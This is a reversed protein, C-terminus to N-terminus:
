QFQIDKLKLRLDARPQIELNESHLLILEQSLLPVVAVICLGPVCSVYKSSLPYGILSPITLM